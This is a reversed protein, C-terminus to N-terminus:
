RLNLPPLPTSKSQLKIQGALATLQKGPGYTRDKTQGVAVLLGLECLEALDRSATLLSVPDGAGAVLARYNSNKLELGRLLEVLAVVSRSPVGHVEALQAVEQWVRAIEESRQQHAHIQLWHANLVFDLWPGADVKPNWHGGGVQSLTDFYARTNKALYEEISLFIPTPKTQKALALSHLVRALRGNGDQFPHILVMNLHAMAAQVLDVDDTNLYDTLEDLLNPLALHNAGEHVVRADLQDYVFVEARRLRGAHLAKTPSLLMYHMALLSSLDFRILEQRSLQLVFGMVDQYGSIAAEIGPALKPELGLELEAVQNITPSFGEIAISSHVVQNLAARRITGIWRNPENLTPSLEQQKIWISEIAKLRLSTLKPPRVIM